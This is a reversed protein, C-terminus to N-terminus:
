RRVREGLCPQVDDPAIQSLRLRLAFGDSQAPPPLSVFLDDDVQQERRRRELEVGETAALREAHEADLHGDRRRLIEEYELQDSASGLIHGVRMSQESKM